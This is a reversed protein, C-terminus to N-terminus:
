AFIFWKELNIGFIDFCFSHGNISQVTLNRVGSEDGTTSVLELQGAM